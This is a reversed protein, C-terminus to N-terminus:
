LKSDRNWVGLIVELLRLRPQIYQDRSASPHFLPTPFAFLATPLQSPAKFVEVVSTALYVPLNGASIEGFSLERERQATGYELNEHYVRTRRLLVLVLELVGAYYPSDTSRDLAYASRWRLIQM